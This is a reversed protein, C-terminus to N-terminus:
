DLVVSLQNLYYARRGPVLQLSVEKRTRGDFSEPCGYRCQSTREIALSEILERNLRLAEEFEGIDAVTCLNVRLRNACILSEELFLPKLIDSLVYILGSTHKWCINDDIEPLSFAQPKIM